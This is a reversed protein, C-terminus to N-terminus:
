GGFLLAGGMTVAQFTFPIQMFSLGYSLRLELTVLSSLPLDYSIGAMGWISSILEISVLSVGNPIDAASLGMGYQLSGFIGWENFYYHAIGGLNALGFALNLNDVPSTGAILQYYGIAGVATHQNLFFCLEGGILAGPGLYINSNTQATIISLNGGLLFGYFMEKDRHLVVVEDLPLYIKNKSESESLGSNKSLAKQPIAFSVNKLLKTKVWGATKDKDLELDVFTYEGHTTGSSSVITGKPLEGLVQAGEYPELLLPSTQILQSM